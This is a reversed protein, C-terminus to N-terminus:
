TGRYSDKKPKSSSSIVPGGHSYIPSDGIDRDQNRELYVTTGKVDVCGWGGRTGGDTKYM